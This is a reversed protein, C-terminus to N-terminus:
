NSSAEAPPKMGIIGFWASKSTAIAQQKRKEADVESEASVEMDQAVKKQSFTILFDSNQYKSADSSYSRRMECALQALYFDTKERENVEEDFFALWEFFETSTTVRQCLQLPM